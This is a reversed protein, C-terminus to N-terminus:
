MAPFGLLLQRLNGVPCSQEEPIDAVCCLATRCVTDQVGQNLGGGRPEPSQEHHQLLPVKHCLTQYLEPSGPEVDQPLSIARYDQTCDPVPAQRDKMSSVLPSPTPATRGCTNELCSYQEDEGM